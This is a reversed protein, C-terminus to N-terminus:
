YRKQFYLKDNIEIKPSGEEDKIVHVSCLSGYHENEKINNEDKVIGYVDLYVKYDGEGTYEIGPQITALVSQLSDLVTNSDGKLQSFNRKVYDAIEARVDDKSMTRKPKAM